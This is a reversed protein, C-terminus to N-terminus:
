RCNRRAVGEDRDQVRSPSKSSVRRGELARSKGRANSGASWLFLSVRLHTTSPVSTGPSRWCCSVCVMITRKNFHCKKVGIRSQSFDVSNLQTQSWVQDLDLEFYRSWREQEPHTRGSGPEPAIRRTNRLRCFHNQCPPCPLPFNLSRRLCCGRPFWYRGRCPGTGRSSQLSLRLLLTQIELRRAELSLYKTNKYM